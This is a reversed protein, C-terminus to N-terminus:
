CPTERVRPDRSGIRGSDSIGVSITPKRSPTRLRRRGPSPRARPARGGRRIGPSVVVRLLLTFVLESIIVLTAVLVVGAFVQVFDRVAFGDVIYRGLGGWGVLAALTATAIVAAASLRIGDLMLPLAIPVQVKRLVSSETMGMGRAAEVTAPDVQRVATFTFVFIPPLALLVLAILAPRYGIGIWIVGLAIIAFSPIARGVNAVNVAVSGKRRSRGLLLGAPVGILCAIALAGLSLAVHEIVRHVVGHTGQWNLPDNFWVFVEHLFNV